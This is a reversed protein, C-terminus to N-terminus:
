KTKNNYQRLSFIWSIVSCYQTVHKKFRPYERGGYGVGLGRERERERENKKKKKKYQITFKHTQKTHRIRTLTM